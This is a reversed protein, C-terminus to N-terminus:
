AQTQVDAASRDLVTYASRKLDKRCYFCLLVDVTRRGAVREDSEPVSYGYVRLQRPRHPERELIQANGAMHRATRDDSKPDPVGRGHSCLVDAVGTQRHEM